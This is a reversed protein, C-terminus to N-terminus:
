SFYPEYGLVRRYVIIINLVETFECRIPNKPILVRLGFVIIM